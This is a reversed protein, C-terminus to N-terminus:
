PSEHFLKGHPPREVDLDRMFEDWTVEGRYGAEEEAVWEGFLERAEAAISTTSRQNKTKDAQLTSSDLIRLNERVMRTFQHERGFVRESANLARVVYPRAENYRGQMQLLVALHHLSTATSPHDEGLISQFTSLAREQHPLAEAVYGLSRLLNALNNESAATDPHEQGFTQQRIHLSREYLPRAEEYLAQASLVNALNDLAGATAPHAEGLTAEFIRVARELLPRAEQYRGQHWLVTAVNGLSQATQPDGEGLTKESIALADRLYPWAEDYRELDLMLSGMNHLSEVTDRHELGLANTRIELAREYLPVVEDFRGMDRLLVGINNLTSAVDIHDRGLERQQDALVEEYVSLAGEPDGAWNMAVGLDNRQRMTVWDTAGLRESNFRVVSELLPVAEAYSGLRLLASGLAFRAQYATEDQRDALTGTVYRLHPLLATLKASRNDRAANMAENAVVRVVDAQAEADEVERRAFSAVLRHMRVLGAESEGVLGLGELRRLADVRRYTDPVEESPQESEYASGLTALLLNREIPEGPAFRAARALLRIALRDTANERDLREYRVVVTREVDLEQDMPPYEESWRPSRREAARPEEVYGSPYILDRYESLHRVHEYEVVNM